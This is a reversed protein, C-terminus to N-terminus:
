IDEKRGWQLDYLELPDTDKRFQWRAKVTNDFLSDNWDGDETPSRDKGLRWSTLLGENEKVTKDWASFLSVCYSLGWYIDALHTFSHIDAKINILSNAELGCGLEMIHVMTRHSYNQLDGQETTLLSRTINQLPASPFQLTPQALSTTRGTQICHWESEYWCCRVLSGGGREGLVLRM